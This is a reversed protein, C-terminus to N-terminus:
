NLSFYRHRIDFDRANLAFFNKLKRFFFLFSKISLIQHLRLATRFAARFLRRVASVSLRPKFDNAVMAALVVVHRKLRLDPAANQALFTMLRALRPHAESLEFNL